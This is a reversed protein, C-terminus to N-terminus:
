FMETLAVTAQHHYPVLNENRVDYEEKVQDVFLKSDDYAEFYKVRM